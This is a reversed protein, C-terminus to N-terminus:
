PDRRLDDPAKMLQAAFHNRWAAQDYRYDVGPAIQRLLELAGPNQVTKTLVEQKGGTSLGSGGLSNSGVSMGPGKPTLSKHTTILADVYEQWLEPDPFYNLARLAATVEVPKRNDGKLIPLYSAVASSAGYEQLQLLAETRIGPDPEFIGTRVLAQVAVPTKLAGLRKVYIMRLSKPDPDNGRSKELAEALATSAMPDDIAQISELAEASRKGPRLVLSRLKTLEKIWLKSAEDFKDRRQERLYVEPVEWGGATRILGRRRQQDAYLAWENGDRVYGLASRAQPHNPDIEIARQFHFDRQALLGNGKCQRALQYHAEADEGLQALQQRYWVLKEDSDSVTKVVRSQPIAVRLEPDVEVIVHPKSGADVKRVITGDVQVDGRLELTDAQAPPADVCSAGLTLLLASTLPMRWHRILHTM